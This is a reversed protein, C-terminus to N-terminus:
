VCTETVTFGTFKVRCGSCPKWYCRIVLLFLRLSRACRSLAKDISTPPRPSSAGAWQAAPARSQPRRAPGATSRRRYLASSVLTQCRPWPLVVSVRRSGPRSPDSRAARAACWGSACDEPSAACGRATAHRSSMAASVPSSCRGRGSLSRTAPM